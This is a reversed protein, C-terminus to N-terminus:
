MYSLEHLAIVALYFSRFFTRTRHETFSAIADTSTALVPRLVLHIRLPPRQQPTGFPGRKSEVLAARVPLRPTCTWTLLAVLVM